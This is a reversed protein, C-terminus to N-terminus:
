TRVIKKLDFRCANRGVHERHLIQRDDVETVIRELICWRVDVLGFASDHEIEAVVVNLLNWLRHPNM